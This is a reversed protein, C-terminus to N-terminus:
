ITEKDRTQILAQSLQDLMTRIETLRDPAVADFFGALLADHRERASLYVSRGKGTLQVVFARRDSASTERSILGDSILRRVLGTVNGGTVKLQRSLDSQTLGEPVRYLQALVDYKALTIGFERSLARSLRSFVSGHIALLAHWVQTEANRTGEASERWVDHPGTLAMVDKEGL